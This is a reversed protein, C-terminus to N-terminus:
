PAAGELAQLDAEVWGRDEASPRLQLYKKLAARAAAREGQRALLTGLGRQAEACAADLAVAKRYHALAQADKGKAQLAVDGLV